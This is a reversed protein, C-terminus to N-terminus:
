RRPARRGTGPPSARASQIPRSGRPSLRGRGPGRPRCTRFFSLLRVQVQRFVVRDDDARAVVAQGVGGIERAGPELHEHDLAHGPDAARGDAALDLFAPHVRVAGVHAAQQARLQEAVELERAVAQLDHGVAAAHGDRRVAVDEAVVRVLLHLAALKRAVVRAVRVRVVPVRGVDHALALEDAREQQARRGVRGRELRAVQLFHDEEALLKLLNPSCSM